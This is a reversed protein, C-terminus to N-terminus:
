THDIAFPSTARWVANPAVFNRNDPVDTKRAIVFIDFPKTPEVALIQFRARDVTELALTTDFVHHHLARNEINLRSRAEFARREGAGPDRSLDHLHLIEDLHTLDTEDTGLRHDEDLHDLTTTPRRHDFTGEKHPLVIVLVGEKALIRRWESLARLPNASHELTHSSLVLDYSEDALQSLDTAEAILWRGTPRLPDFLFTQGAEIQGEWITKDSFNCNDLRSV